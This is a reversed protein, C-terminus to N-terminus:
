KKMLKLQKVQYEVGNEVEGILKSSKNRFQQNAYNNLTGWAGVKMLELAARGAVTAITKGVLIINM